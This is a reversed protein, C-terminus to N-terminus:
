IINNTFVHDLKNIEKLETPQIKEERDSDNSLYSGYDSESSSSKSSFHSRKNSAKARIKNIKNLERRSGSKESISFIMLEAKQPIKAGELSTKSKRVVGRSSKVM